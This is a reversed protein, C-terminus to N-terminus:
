AKQRSICIGTMAIIMAITTTMIIITAPMSIRMLIIMGMIITTGTKIPYQKLPLPLAQM